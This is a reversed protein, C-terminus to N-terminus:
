QRSDSACHVGYAPQCMLVEERDDTQRDTQRKVYGCTQRDRLRNRQRGRKRRDQRKDRVCWDKPKSVCRRQFARIQKFYHKDAGLSKSKHLTIKFFKISNGKLRYKVTFLTLCKRHILCVEQFQSSYTM